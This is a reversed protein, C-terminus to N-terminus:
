LGIARDAANTAQTLGRGLETRVIQLAEPKSKRPVEGDWRLFVKHGRGFPLPVRLKDWTNLRRQRSKAFAYCYIPCSVAAAWGLTAENVVRAPGSPGDTVMGISIGQKVRRLVERTTQANSRSKSIRMPTRGYRRHMDGGVRGIASSAFLTSLPGFEDPWHAPGFLSREHWMLFLVPGNELDAAMEDLGEATWRTTRDCFRLYATFLAGLLRYPWEARILASRLKSVSRGKPTAERGQHSIQRILRLGLGQDSARNLSVPSGAKPTYSLQYLSPRWFRLDRTRVRSGRGPGGCDARLVVIM